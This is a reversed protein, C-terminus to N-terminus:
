RGARPAQGHRKGKGAKACKPNVVKSRFDYRRGNQAEMRVTARQAQACLNRSNVILSKKGGLLELTFTSVPADPVVDFTNRIGRNKSDTRGVLEIEIPQSDPGRLAAVLDPLLNDSSRLYVPGTLPQDLLPSIATAQGYVSEAPCQDAAFQVRTCVTRIHEQALFASQPRTVAAKAINADGPRATVVARLRQYAGRRTAGFLRLNLNPKFGLRACEAIQFRSSVGAVAGNAGFVRGTVLQETCDTPNVIFGSRDIDVRVDRIRLPIGRLAKPITDSVATVQATSPNVQLATRVVQVGLDFPGAVAPVIFALSVPAGKYPGALYVKGGVFFPNNGPGVGITTTGVQSAVPCSPAAIEKAGDGTATRAAAQAIGGETCAPVGALKATLGEPTAVEVRDLEQNGDPRTLRVTFPSSAGALLETSGASFGPVIPRQAASTPCGGAPSSDIQFPDDIPVPNGPDSYSSLSSASTFTGCTTPTALPARPGRKFSLKFKGFPLQPNDAFTTKLQGTVPDAEVKGALKVLLGREPSEVVIYIAFDTGFPNDGQSALYVNGTPWDAEPLLPTEIVVTGVKAADSCTPDSTDFLMAGGQQPTAVVLSQHGPVSAFASATAAGGTLASSGIVIQPVDLEAFPGSFAILYPNKGGSNGPGGTVTVNGAGIAPLAQLANQVVTATATPPMAATLAVGSTPAGTGNASLTLKLKGSLETEISSITATAAIGTGTVRKGVLFTGSSPEVEEVKNSGAGVVKGTGTASTSQGEFSLNYNGATADVTLQQVESNAEVGTIAPVDQGARSGGFHVTWPGGAGGAVAIDSPGLNALGELAAEVEPATASGPLSATEQSEFSLTFPAGAAPLSIRQTENSDSTVFGIQSKTCAGLGGAAAPNLSMGQPLTVVTDRLHSSALGADSKWYAVADANYQDVEPQTAGVPPAPFPLENNQAVTLEVDLGTSSDAAKSAAGGPGVPDLSIGPKFDVQGCGDVPPSPSDATHWNPDSLDPFSSPLDAGPKQWSDIQATTVPESGDCSTQLSVFPKIPGWSPEYHGQQSPLLGTPPISTSKLDFGARTRYLDHSAAWPVGWFTLQQNMLPLGTPLREIGATVGFDGDTRVEGEVRLAAFGGASPLGFEAARGDQPVLNYVPIIQVPISVGLFNVRILNVGVQTSPPCTVSSNEFDVNSCKPVADLNGVVGPPLNVKIDRTSGAPYGPTTPGIEAQDTIDRAITLAGTADPHSGAQTSPALRWAPPPGWGLPSTPVGNITGDALCERPGSPALGAATAPSALDCTAGLFASPGPMAGQPPAFGYEDGYAAWAPSASLAALTCAAVALVALRASLAIRSTM